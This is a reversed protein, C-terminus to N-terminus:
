RDQQQPAAALEAAGIAITQGGALCRSDLTIRPTVATTSAPLAAWLDVEFRDRVDYPVEREGVYTGSSWLVLRPHLCSPAPGVVAGRIRLRVRQHSVPVTDFELYNDGQSLPVAGTVVLPADGKVSVQHITRVQLSAIRRPPTSTNTTAADNSRRWIAEAQPAIADSAGGVVSWVCWPERSPCAYRLVIDAAGRRDHVRHLLAVRQLDFTGPPTDRDLLQLAQEPRNACALQRARVLQRMRGPRLVREDGAPLAAALMEVERAACTEEGESAQYARVVLPALGDASSRLGAGRWFTTSRELMPMARLVHLSVRNDALARSFPGLSVAALMAALLGALVGARANGNRRSTM